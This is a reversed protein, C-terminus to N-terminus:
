AFVIVSGVPTSPSWTLQVQSNGPDAKLCFRPSAAKASLVSCSENPALVHASAGSTIGGAVMMSGGVMTVALCIGALTRLWRGLRRRQTYGPFKSEDVNGSDRVDKM